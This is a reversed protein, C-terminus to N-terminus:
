PQTRLEDTPEHIPSLGAASDAAKMLEELWSRNLPSRRPDTYKFALGSGGSIWVTTRGPGLSPDGEWTFLFKEGRRMKTMMVHQLHQLLRDPFEVRVDGHYSFRGM